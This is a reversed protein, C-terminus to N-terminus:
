AWNNLVVNPYRDTLTNYLDQAIESLAEIAQDLNEKNVEVTAYIEDIEEYSTLTIDVIYDTVNGDHLEVNVKILDSKVTDLLEYVKGLNRQRGM